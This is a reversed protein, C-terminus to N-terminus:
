KKELNDLRELIQGLITCATYHASSKSTFAVQIHDNIQQWVELPNLLLGPSWDHIYKELLSSIGDRLKQEIEEKVKDQPYGSGDEYYLTYTLSENSQSVLIKDVWVDKQIFDNISKELSAYDEKITGYFIKVKM